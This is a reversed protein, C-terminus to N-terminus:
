IIVESPEALVNEWAERSQAALDKIAQTIARDQQAKAVMEDVWDAGEIASKALQDITDQNRSIHKIYLPYQTVWPCYSVIYWSNMGTIWMCGQAQDRYDEIGNAYINRIHQRPKPCKIEIGEAGGILGDPSCGIREDDHLVFAVKDVKLRTAQEFARIAWDELFHGREM